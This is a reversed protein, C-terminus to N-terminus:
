WDSYRRLMTEAIGRAKRRTLHHDKMLQQTAAEHVVLWVVALFSPLNEETETKTRLEAIFAYALLIMSM